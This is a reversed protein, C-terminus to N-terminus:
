FQGRLAKMLDNVEQPKIGLVEGFYKTGYFKLSEALNEMLKKIEAKSEPKRLKEKSIMWASLFGLSFNYPRLDIIKQIEDINKEENKEQEIKILCCAVMYNDRYAEQFFGARTQLVFATKSSRFSLVQTIVIGIISALAVLVTPWIEESM